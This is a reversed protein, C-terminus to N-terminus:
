NYRENEEKKSLKLQKFNYHTIKTKDFGTNNMKLPKLINNKIFEQYTINTTKEIIVDLIM